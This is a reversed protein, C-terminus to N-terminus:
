FRKCISYLSSFKTECFLRLIVVMKGYPNDLEMRYNLFMTLEIKMKFFVLFREQLLKTRLNVKSDNKRGVSHHLM